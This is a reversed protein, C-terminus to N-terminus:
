DKGVCGNNCEEMTEFPVVGGCGGWIFKMCKKENQDYYYRPFAAM